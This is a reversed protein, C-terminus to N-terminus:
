GARLLYCSNDASPCQGKGRQQYDLQFIHGSPYRLGVILLLFVSSILITGHKYKVHPIGNQGLGNTIQYNSILCFHM